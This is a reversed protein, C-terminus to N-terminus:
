EHAHPRMYTEHQRKGEQKVKKKKDGCHAGLQVQGAQPGRIRGDLLDKECTLASSRGKVGATITLGNLVM